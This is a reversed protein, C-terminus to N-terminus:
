KANNADIDDLFAIGLDDGFFPLFLFVALIEIQRWVFTAILVLIFIAIIAIFLVLFTFLTFFRFVVPLFLLAIRRGPSTKENGIVAQNNGVLM